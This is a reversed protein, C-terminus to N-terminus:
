HQKWSMVPSTGNLPTGFLAPMPGYACAAVAGRAFFLASARTFTSPDPSGTYFSGQLYISNLFEITPMAALPQFLSVAWFGSADIELPTAFSASATGVADVGVESACEGLLASPLAGVNSFAALRAKGGATGAGAIEVALGEITAKGFLPVYVANLRSATAAVTAVNYTGAGYWNGSVYTPSRVVGEPRGWSADERLVNRVSPTAGAAPAVGTKGAAFVDVLAALDAGSLTMPRDTSGSVNGLVKGTAIHALKSLAVSGDALALLDKINQLSLRVNGGARLAALGDTLQAAAGDTLVSIKEDLSAM